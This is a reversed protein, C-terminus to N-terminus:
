VADGVGGTGHVDDVSTQPRNRVGVYNVETLTPGGLVLGDNVLGSMTEGRECAFVTCLKVEM